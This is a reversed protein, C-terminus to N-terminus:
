IVFNQFIISLPLENLLLKLPSYKRHIMKSTNHVVVNRLMLDENELCFWKSYIFIRTYCKWVTNM